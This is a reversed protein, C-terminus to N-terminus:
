SCDKNQIKIKPRKVNSKLNKLTEIKPTKQTTKWNKCNEFINNKNNESSVMTQKWFKKNGAENCSMQFKILKNFFNEIKVGSLKRIKKIPPRM